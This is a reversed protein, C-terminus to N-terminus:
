AAVVRRPFLGLQEELYQQVLRYDEKIEKADYGCLPLPTCNAYAVDVAQSRRVNPTVLAGYADRLDELQEHYVVGQNRSPVACPIVALMPVEIRYSRAIKALEKELAPLGEIEKAGPKTCCVVGWAGPRRDKEEATTALIGAIVITSQTGPCDVFTVDVPPADELATRLNFEGGTMGPLEVMVKDLTSRRAPVLTLNPIEGYVPRDHDDFGRTVRGPLEVDAITAEERFVDAVTKGHTDEYGLWTSANAQSDIDVVRVRVGNMALRVALAVVSTTKGTSGAFGAFAYTGMPREKSSTTFVPSIPQPPATSDAQPPPYAGHMVAASGDHVDAYARHMVRAPDPDASASRSFIRRAAASLKPAM